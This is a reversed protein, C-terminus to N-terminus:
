TECNYRSPRKVHSGGKKGVTAHDFDGAVARAVKQVAQEGGVNLFEVGPVARKEAKSVGCPFIMASKMTVSAGAWSPPPKKRSIWRASQTVRNRFEIDVFKARLHHDLVKGRHEAHERGPVAGARGFLAQTKGIRAQRREAQAHHQRRMEDRGGRGLEAGRQDIGGIVLRVADREAHRLAAEIEAVAVGEGVLGVHVLEAADVEGLAAIDALLHHRAHLMAAGRAGAHHRHAVVARRGSGAGRHGGAVTLDASEAGGGVASRQRQQTEVAHAICHRLALREGGAADREM